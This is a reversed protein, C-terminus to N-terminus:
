NKARLAMSPEENVTTRVVFRAGFYSLGLGVLLIILVFIPQLEAPIESDYYIDPLINLPYIELYISIISGILIGSGIGMLAILFGINSFLNHVKRRSLGVAQLLGIERRKQSILLSLVSLLSLGAILSALALFLGIMFKELKLALFLASNRAKWTEIIIDDVGALETKINEAQDPDPFRAEVGLRRSATNRLSGLTEGAIFFMMQSDVEPINTVLIQRVKVKEYKPTESPPLLLGEPPVVMLQEGEFVGLSHALDVGILVEGADPREMENPNTNKRSQPSISSLMSKLSEWEVGRAIAGRFKGDMTRLIVDQTEFSFVKAGPTGKLLTVAFHNELSKVSKVNQFEINLHPEVALTRDKQNKNLATMVSMVVILSSISVALGVMTLWAIQRVISGNKAFLVFRQFFEFLM